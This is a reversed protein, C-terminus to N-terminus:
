DKTYSRDPMYIPSHLPNKTNYKTYNYYKKSPIGGIMSIYSKQPGENGIEDLEKQKLIPAEFLYHHSDKGM